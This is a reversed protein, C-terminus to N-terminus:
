KKSQKETKRKIKKAAKIAKRRQKFEKTFQKTDTLGFIYLDDYGYGNNHAEFFKVAHYIRSPNPEDEISLAVGKTVKNKNLIVYESTFRVNDYQYGEDADMSNLFLGIAGLVLGLAMVIFGGGLDGTAMLFVGLFMGGIIFVISLQSKLINRRFLAKSKLKSELKLDIEVPGNEILFQDIDEVNFSM